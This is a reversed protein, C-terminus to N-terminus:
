RPLTVAPDAAEVEALAGLTATVYAVVLLLGGDLVDAAALQALADARLNLLRDRLPEPETM